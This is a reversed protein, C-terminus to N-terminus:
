ENKEYKAPNVAVTSVYRLLLILIGLASGINQEDILVAM